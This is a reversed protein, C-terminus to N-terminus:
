EFGRRINEETRFKGTESYIARRVRNIGGLPRHAELSQWPNFTMAECNEQTAEATANDSIVLTALKIFPSKEEDWIVSANEIPMAAPDGQFQVMFDFCAPAAELHALMADTLFDRHREITPALASGQCPKLSYKVAKSNDDGFRYPTTSWYQIAFPNSIKERGKLVIALSYFHGPYIFYRWLKEDRTAEIFALFDEPTAAFLAPYSNFLFDQGGNEGWLAKGNVGKLKLSAGRFDKDRDDESTANAFRLQAPYVRGRAFVGQQLEIPIDDQVSFTADFCGLTKGQNFRKIMGDGASDLSTQTIAEIMAATFQAERSDMKEQGPQLGKHGADCSALTLGMAVAVSFSVLRAPLHRIM